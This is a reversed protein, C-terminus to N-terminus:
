RLRFNRFSFWLGPLTYITMLVAFVFDSRTIAYFLLVVVPLITVKYLRYLGRMMNGRKEEIESYEEKLSEPHTVECYIVAGFRGFQRNAEYELGNIEFKPYMSEKTVILNLNNETGYKMLAETFEEPNMIMTDPHFYFNRKAEAKVVKKYDNVIDMFHGGKSEITEMKALITETDMSNTQTHLLFRCMQISADLENQKELLFHLHGSIINNFDEGDLIKQINEISIDLKRFIKIKKLREVDENTYERYSNEHNRKPHLLGKKEYFRINQKSIQTQSEVERINM